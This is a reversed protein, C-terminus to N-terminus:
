EIFEDYGKEELQYALEKGGSEVIKGDVFIHIYDPSLYDLIRKYHTIILVGMGEEKLSKIGHAVEKLADIDLGSDPEDLIAIDPNLVMMQLVENKKREGGSFGENVDRELFSHDMDLVNMSKRAQMLMKPVSPTKGTKFKLAGMLLTLTSLGSVVHPHQMGLFLGLNARESTDLDYLEEGKFSASGSTKEYKPHGLLSLALTSKGSGNPGMLAHVEGKNVTLSLGKIIEQDDVSVHLDNIELGATSSM